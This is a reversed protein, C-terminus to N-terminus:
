EYALFNSFWNEKKTEFGNIILINKARTCAVYSLNSEEIVEKEFSEKFLEDIYKNNKFIDLRYLIDKCSLDSNFVPYVINKKLKNQKYTQALFVAKAELGKAAHITLVQVSNLSDIEYAEEYNEMIEIQSLFFLPSIYRGHNIKLSLNLFNLLNNKVETSELENEIRYRSFIDIDNYIKDLLDHIPIKGVLSKWENLFKGTETKSLFEYMNKYNKTSLQDLEGISINFIPSIMLKYLLAKDESGIIILKLLNKIDIIEPQAMLCIKNDVIVPIKKEILSNKIYDIHSRNRILILIDKYQINKEKHLKIIQESIIKSELEAMKDILLDASENESTSKKIENIKVMGPIKVATSFKESNVFSKNLFDIIEESSRKSENLIINTSNFYNKTFEKCISFLLPESGRFGYISQKEDGVITISADDSNNSIAVLIMEIVKWQIYNTDQFEDILIHKISNSIKYFIWDDENLSLLKKYCLWTKDSFDYLSKENLMRQYEFFFQTAIIKWSVQIENFLKNEYLYIEDTFITVELNNKLCLNQINKKITRDNTLFFKKIINIKEENHINKKNLDNKLIEFKDIFINDILSYLKSIFKDQYIQIRDEINSFKNGEFNNNEVIELYYSKKNIVERISKKLSHFSKTYNLIFNINKEFETNNIIYEKCFIKKEVDDIIKKTNSNTNTEFNKEIDKDLHFQSLIEVFFSDFTSIRIDKNKIQIEYFLNKAKKAYEDYKENIGIERLEFKLKDEDQKAWSEIKENLRERMEASAKKTFTIATIKDPDEGELLLRLIKSIIVWTKGTGASATVNISEGPQLYNNINM